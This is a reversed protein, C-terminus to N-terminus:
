KRTDEVRAEHVRLHLARLEISRGGTTVHTASAEPALALTSISPPATKASATRHKSHQKYRRRWSKTDVRNEVVCHGHFESANPHCLVAPIGAVTSDRAPIRLVTASDPPMSTKVKEDGAASADAESGDGSTLPPPPVMISTWPPQWNAVLEHVAVLPPRSPGARLVRQVRARLVATSMPDVPAPQCEAKVVASEEGDAKSTAPKAAASRVRQKKCEQVEGLFKAHLRADANAAVGPRASPSKCERAERLMRYREVATGPRCALGSGIDATLAYVNAKVPWVSTVPDVGATARAVTAILADVDVSGGRVIAASGPRSPSRSSRNDKGTAAVMRAESGGSLPAFGMASTTLLHDRLDIPLDLRVSQASAPRSPRQQDTPLGSFYPMPTPSRRTAPVAVTTATAVKSSAPRRRTRGWGATAARREMVEAVLKEVVSPRLTAMGPKPQPRVVLHPQTGRRKPLPSTGVASSASPRRRGPEFTASGRRLSPPEAAVVVSHRRAAPASVSNRRQQLQKQLQQRQARPALIPSSLEGATFHQVAPALPIRTKAQASDTTTRTPSSPTSSANRGSAAARPRLSSSGSRQRARGHGKGHLLLSLAEGADQGKDKFHIPHFPHFHQALLSTEESELDECLKAVMTFRELEADSQATVPAPEPPERPM